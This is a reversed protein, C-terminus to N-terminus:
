YARYYYPYGSFIDHSGGYRRPFGYISGYTQGYWQVLKQRNPWIPDRYGEKVPPSLQFGSRSGCIVVLAVAFFAIVVAWWFDMKVATYIYSIIGELSNIKENKQTKNPCVKWCTGSTNKM